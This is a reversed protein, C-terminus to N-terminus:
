PNHEEDQGGGVCHVEWAASGAKNQRKMAQKVKQLTAYDVGLEKQQAPPM